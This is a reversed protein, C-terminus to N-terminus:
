NTHKVKKLNGYLRFGQSLPIQGLKTIELYDNDILGEIKKKVYPKEVFHFHEQNFLEELETEQCVSKLNQFLESIFIKSDIEPNFANTFEVEENHLCSTILDKFDFVVQTM